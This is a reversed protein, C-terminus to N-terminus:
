RQARADQLPGFDVTSQPDITITKGSTSSLIQLQQSISQPDTEGTKTLVGVEKTYSQMAVDQSVNVYKAIIASAGDPTAKIWDEADLLALITKVVADRHQQIYSASTVLGTAPLQLDNALFAIEHYGQQEAEVDFPPSLVAADVQGALLAAYDDQTATLYLLNVDSLSMGAAKFGAELYEYPSNGPTNTSVTKGRLDALTSDEAKGVLTWPTSDSIAYVIKFPFGNVEGNVADASSSTFQVDGASLASQAATNSLQEIKGDIGHKQFFGEDVAVYLPLQSVSPSPSSITVVTQAGGGSSTTPSPQSSPASSAVPQATPAATASACASVGLLAVVGLSRIFFRSKVM